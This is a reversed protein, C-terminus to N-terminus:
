FPAEWRRARLSNPPFMPHGLTRRLLPRKTLLYLDDRPETSRRCPVERGLADGFKKPKLLQKTPLLQLAAGDAQQASEQTSCAAQRDAHPWM